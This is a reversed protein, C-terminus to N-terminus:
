GDGLPSPDIPLRAEGYGGDARASQADTAMAEGTGQGMREGRPPPAGALGGAADADIAARVGRKGARGVQLCRRGDRALRSRDDCAVVQEHLSICILTRIETLVCPILQQDHHRTIM